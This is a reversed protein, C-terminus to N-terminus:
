MGMNPLSSAHLETSFQFCFNFLMSPNDCFSIHDSNIHEKMIGKHIFMLSCRDCKKSNPSTQHRKVHDKFSIVNALLKQGMNAVAVCKLCHPCQLKEGNKHVQFNIQLVYITLYASFLVAVLNDKNWQIAFLLRM